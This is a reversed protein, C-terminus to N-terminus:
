TASVDNRWATLRLEHSCGPCRFIRIETDGGPVPVIATLHMEAACRCDPLETSGAVLLREFKSMVGGTGTLFHPVGDQGSQPSCRWAALTPACGHRSTLAPINPVTTPEISQGVPLTTGSTAGIARSMGMGRVGQGPGYQSSEKADSNPIFQVTEKSNGVQRLYGSAAERRGPRDVFLARFIEPPNKM